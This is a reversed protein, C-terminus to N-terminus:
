SNRRGTFRLERDDGYRNFYPTHSIQITDMRIVLEGRGIEWEKSTQKRFM